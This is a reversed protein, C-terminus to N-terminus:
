SVQVVIVGLALESALTTPKPTTDTADATAPPNAIAHHYRFVSEFSWFGM